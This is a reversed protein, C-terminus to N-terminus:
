GRDKKTARYEKELTRIGQGRYLKDGEIEMHDGELVEGPSCMERYAHQM